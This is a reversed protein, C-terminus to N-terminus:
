AFLLDKEADRANATVDLAISLDHGNNQPRTIGRSHEKDTNSRADGLANHQATTNIRRDNM